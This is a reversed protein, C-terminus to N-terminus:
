QDFGELDWIWLEDLLNGILTDHFDSIGFNRASIDELTEQKEAPYVIFHTNQM